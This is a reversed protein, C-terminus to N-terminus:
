QPHVRDARARRKRRADLSVEVGAPRIGLARQLLHHKATKGLAVLDAIDGCEQDRIRCAKDMAGRDQDVASLGDVLPLAGTVSTSLPTRTTSSPVIIVAGSAPM